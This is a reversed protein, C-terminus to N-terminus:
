VPLAKRAGIVEYLGYEILNRELGAGVCAKLSGKLQGWGPFM